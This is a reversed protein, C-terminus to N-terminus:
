IDIMWWRMIGNKAITKNRAAQVDALGVVVAVSLTIRDGATGVGISVVASGVRCGLGTGVSIGTMGVSVWAGVWVERGVTPLPIMAKPEFRSPAYIFM